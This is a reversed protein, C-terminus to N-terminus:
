TEPLNLAFLQLPENLTTMLGFLVPRRTSIIKTKWMKIFLSHTLVPEPPTGRIACRGNRRRHLVIFKLSDSSHWQPLHALHCCPLRKLIRKRRTDFLRSVSRM